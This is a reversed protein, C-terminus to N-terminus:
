SWEDAEERSVLEMKSGGRMHHSRGKPVLYEGRAIKQPVGAELRRWWSSRTANDDTLHRESALSNNSTRGPVWGFIVSGQNGASRGGVRSRNAPKTAPDRNIRGDGSGADLVSLSFGLRDIRPGDLAAAHGGPCEDCSWLVLNEEAEGRM